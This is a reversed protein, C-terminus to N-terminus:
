VVRRGEKMVMAIKSPFRLDKDPRGQVALLDAFLGVRITGTLHNLGLAEAARSTAAMICDLPSLGAEKM